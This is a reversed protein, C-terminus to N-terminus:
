WVCCGPCCLKGRSECFTYSAQVAESVNTPSQPVAATPLLAIINMLRKELDRNQAEILMNCKEFIGPVASAIVSSIINSFAAQQEKITAAAEDQPQQDLPSESEAPTWLEDSEAIVELKNCNTEEQLQSVIPADGALSRSETNTGCEVCSVLDTKHSEADAEGAIEETSTGVERLPLVGARSPISSCQSLAHIQGLLHTINQKQYEVVEQAWAVDSCSSSTAVFPAFVTADPNMSTKKDPVEVASEAAPVLLGSVCMSDGLTRLLTASKLQTMGFEDGVDEEDFADAWASIRRCGTLKLKKVETTGNAQKPSMNEKTGCSSQVEVRGNTSLPQQGEYFCYGNKACRAM